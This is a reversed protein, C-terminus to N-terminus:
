STADHLQRALDHWAITCANGDEGDRDLGLLDCRYGSGDPRTGDLANNVRAHWHGHVVLYPAVADVAGRLRERQRRCYDLVEGSVWDPLPGDTPWPPAVGAPVDHTLLVDVRDWGTRGVNAVLAACDDDTLEEGPWWTEGPTRLLRDFSGAGGLAAFRVGHQTWVHGRPAYRIRSEEHNRLWGDDDVGFAAVQDYDEHNGLVVTLTQDNDALVAEVATLYTRGHEGPWVGFDGVQFVETVGAGGLHDLLAVAWRTNGHWDGAFAAVADAVGGVADTAPESPAPQPLSPSPPPPAAPM